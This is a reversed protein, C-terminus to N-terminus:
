PDIGRRSGWLRHRRRAELAGVQDAEASERAQYHALLLIADSALVFAAMTRTTGCHTEIWCFPLARDGSAILTYQGAETKAIAVPKILASV